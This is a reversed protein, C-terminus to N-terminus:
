RRGHNIQNVTVAGSSSLTGFIMLEAFGPECSEDSLGTFRVRRVGSINAIDLDIDRDPAPLQVEGTTFIVRGSADFLDFRGSFFDFGVASQRNGRMSIRSVVVDQPFIVEYFPSKGLNAADGCNTFWSTDLNGDIAREPGFSSSFSSSVNTTVQLVRPLNVLQSSGFVLLEAFGPESSEDSLGTFRVRKVGSVNPVVIDVDRDPGPLQVEGTTFIVNGASNFLDFRGSFFDFGNEFERNGRMSIGSVTAEKEFIVEYFPTRGLNAADGVATFWSTRLNGDIAREPGFGTSFSSSVNTRVPTVQILNIGTLPASVTLTLNNPNSITGSASNLTFSRSGVPATNAITLRVITTILGGSTSASQIASTIGPGFDMSTISQYNAGLISLDYRLGQIVNSPSISLLQPLGILVIGSLPLTVTGRPDNSAISLAGNQIGATSATFRIKIEQQGGVPLSLPTTPSVVTYLQNNSTISNVTLTAIGINHALLSLEKSQGINVNGFNLADTSLVISPGTPENLRLLWSVANKFLKKKQAIGSEDSGIFALVNQTVRRAGTAPDQFAVIVDHQGSKALLVEGATATQTTADPDLSYSFDRVIGFPGNTIPHTTTVITVTGNGGFNGGPKLKILNSWEAARPGSLCCQASHALDDGIFYLPIRAEAASQFVASDSDSIGGGSFGLDDYIILNFNQIASFTIGQRNFVQSTFGMETLYAQLQTIEGGAFNQVIAVTANGVLGNGALLVGINPRNPDNSSISLAGTQPGAASPSFRVTVTQRAGAAITFPTAPSVVTFRANNSAISNITLTASGTNIVALALDRSQGVSVLGFDLVTASLEIGPALAIVRFVVDVPSSVKNDPTIVTFSRAGIPANSAITIRVPLSTSTGGPLIRATVGSGSLEVALAGDLNDGIIVADVTTGPAGGAPNISTISTPVVVRSLLSRGVGSSGVDYVFVSNGSISVGKPEVFTGRQALDTIASSLKAVKRVGNREAVFINGAADVSVSTPGDFVIGAGAGGTAAEMTENIAKISQGGIVGLTLVSGTPTVLRVRNNGSDAVIINQGTADFTLGQPRDFRAAAGQGDAFGAQGSMGALTSVQGNVLDVVRITNNNTDAVYVKGRGDLALGRPNNFRAQAAAGDVAGPQGIAGAVTEVIGDQRIRRIVSNASDAIYVNGATNDFGIGQPSNFLANLRQGNVGGATNEIGAYVSFDSDFAGVRIVHRRFDSQFIRPPVSRDVAIEGPGAQGLDNDEVQTVQVSVADTVTQSGIQLRATITATGPKNGRIRNSTDVSAVEANDSIFQVATASVPNGNSDIAEVQLQLNQSRNIVPARQAIRLTATAAAIVEFIVDGSSASETATQLTFPLAGLSATSSATIRIPLSRSTAGSLITATVGSLNFNVATVNRLGAGTITANVTAGQAITTPNISFVRTLQPAVNFAGPQSSITGQPTTVTVTRAGVPADEAIALQVPITLGTAGSQITATIGAGLSVGTAGALSSGSIVVNVTDGQRASSPSISDIAPNRSPAIIQLNVPNSAGGGPAPNTVTFTLQGPSAIDSPSLNVRLQSSKVLDTERNVGNISIVSSATFNNGIVRVTSAPGEAVLQNPNLLTIVPAPNELSFTLSGSSVAGGANAVTFTRPGPAADAAIFISVPLSEATAGDRITAVVGAGSFTVSLANNLDTGSITANITSGITATSPNIGTITPPPVSSGQLIQVLSILDSVSVTNDLNIDAAILADGTLLRAGLLHQIMLLLDQTNILGNGDLDGKRRAQGQASSASGSMALATNDNITSFRAALNSLSGAGVFLAAFVYFLIIFSILSSLLKLYSLIGSIESKM